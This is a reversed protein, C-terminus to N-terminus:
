RLGAKAWEHLGSHQFDWVLTSKECISEKPVIKVDKFHCLSSLHLLNLFLLGALSCLLMLLCPLTHPLPQIIFSPLHCRQWVPLILCPSGSRQQWFHCNGLAQRHQNQKSICWRVRRLVRMKAESEVRWDGNLKVGNKAGFILGYM